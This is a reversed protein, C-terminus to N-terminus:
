ATDGESKKKMSVEVKGECHPCKLEVLEEERGYLALYATFSLVGLFIGLRIQIGTWFDEFQFDSTMLGVAVSFMIGVFLDKLMQNQNRM